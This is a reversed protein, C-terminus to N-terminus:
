KYFDIIDFNKKELNEIIYEKSFKQARIPLPARKISNLVDKVNIVYILPRFDYYDSVQIIELIEKYEERSIDGKEFKINAGKILGLRNQAIKNGHKDQTNVEDHFMRFICRPNSSPPNEGSNFFPACWVYHKNAYYQESIKYALWTNVSYLFLFENEM